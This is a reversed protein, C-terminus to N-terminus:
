DRVSSVNNVFLYDFFIEIEDIRRNSIGTYSSVSQSRNSKMAHIQIASHRISKNKWEIHFFDTWKEIHQDQSRREIFDMQQMTILGFFGSIDIFFLSFFFWEERNRVTWRKMWRSFFYVIKTWRKRALLQMILNLSESVDLLYIHISFLVFENEFNLANENVLIEITNRSFFDAGSRDISYGFNMFQIGEIVEFSAILSSLVCRAARRRFWFVIVASHSFLCFSLIILSFLQRQKVDFSALVRLYVFTVM